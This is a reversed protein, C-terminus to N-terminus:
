TSHSGSLAQEYLRSFIGPDVTVPNFRGTWQQAAAAALEPIAAPAIAPAPLEALGITEELWPVLPVGLHSGLEDYIAASAPEGTNLRVVHPLMLAVAHGHALDFRATLPNAAAHAAGLMSNEIAAGALAAGLLMQGRTEIPVSASSHPGPGAELLPRIAAAILRFAQTAYAASVQNRETCVASELAHSLADLATLTAVPRPQSTTLEPDLIAIRALANPAGCAIKEHSGDRSVVAYSQCESGTGATTPIAIFPLMAKKALGYGRYDAMRGGHHLLFNCGKATDLSSGGGLGILADPAVNEAFALCAEIDSETPNAHTGEYITVTIGAAELYATARAVHGAAVIGPDTVLLVNRAGLSAVCEPLESLRGPGFVLRPSPRADFPNM